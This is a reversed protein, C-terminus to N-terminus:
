RIGGRTGTGSVQIVSETGAIGAVREVVNSIPSWNERNDMTKLAFWYRVGPRLGLITFAEYTGASDPPPMGQVIAAAAFNASDIPAESIRLDYAELCGPSGDDRRDDPAIWTLTAVGADGLVFAAMFGAVVVSLVSV